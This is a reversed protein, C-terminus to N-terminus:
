HSRFKRFEVILYWTVGIIFPYVLFNLRFAEIFNLKIIELFADSMGCGYCNIGFCFTFFCPIRLDFSTTMVVLTMLIEYILVSALLKNSRILGILFSNLSSLLEM